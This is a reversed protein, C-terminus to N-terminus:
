GYPQTTRMAKFEERGSRVDRVVNNHGPKHIMDVNMLALASHCKLSKARVQVQTGFSKRSVNDTHVKTKNLGSYCQWMILCHVMGFLQKDLIPQRRQSGNLKKTM